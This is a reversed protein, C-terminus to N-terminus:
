GVGWSSRIIRRSCSADLKNKAFLQINVHSADIELWGFNQRASGAVVLERVGAGSSTAEYLPFKTGAFEDLANRHIDGSLALTRRTSSQTILWEWDVPFSKRYDSLISGSAVLHISSAPSQGYTQAITQRQSSGLITRKTEELGWKRTRHTRGDTLHLYVDNMLKVSPTQLPFTSFDWLPAANYQSPFSGVVFGASLASRFATQFATSLMVKQRSSPAALADAGAQDNWLFDHDDWISFVKGAGMSKVLASFEPVKIQEQYRNFLHQAFQDDTMAMPHTSSNIDLYISDGLLVLYDPNRDQIWKWVVQSPTVQACFCSAFAIKM